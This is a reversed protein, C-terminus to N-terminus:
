ITVEQDKKMGRELERRIQQGESMNKRANSTMRGTRRKRLPAESDVRAKLDILGLTDIGKFKLSNITKALVFPTLRRKGSRLLSIHAESVGIQTSATKMNPFIDGLFMYFEEGKKLTTQAPTPNDTIPEPVSNVPEFSRGELNNSIRAKQAKSLGTYGALNSEVLNAYAQVLPETEVGSSELLAIGAGFSLISVGLDGKKIRSVAPQSISLERAVTAQNGLVNALSTVFQEGFPAILESRKM